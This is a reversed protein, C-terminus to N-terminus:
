RAIVDTSFLALAMLFITVVVAGSNTFQVGLYVAVAAILVLLARISFTFWRRNPKDM